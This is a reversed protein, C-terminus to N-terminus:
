EAVGGKLLPPNRISHLRGFFPYSLLVTNLYHCGIEAKRCIGNFETLRNSYGMNKSNFEIFDAFQDPFGGYTEVRNKYKGKKNIINRSKNNLHWEIVVNIPSFGM